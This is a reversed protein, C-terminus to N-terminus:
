RFIDPLYLYTPFIPSKYYAGGNTLDGMFNGAVFFANPNNDFLWSFNGASDTMVLQSMLIHGQRDLLDLMVPENLQVGPPSTFFLRGTVSISNPGRDPRFRISTPNAIRVEFSMGGLLVADYHTDTPNLSNVLLRASSAAVNVHFTQGVSSPGSPTIVVPLDQVGSPPLVVDTKNGNVSVTSGPPLDDNWIVTFTKTVIPSDNILHIIRTIPSGPGPPAPPSYFHDINEQASNNATNTETAPATIPDIRVRICSHFDFDGTPPTAISPTWPISVDTYGGPAITSLGPFITKDVNGINLWGSAGAMGVGLPDTVDFHVVVNSMAQTGINRIRAYVTNPHNACPNDGNGHGVATSDGFPIYTGYQYTGYGNCSSDIWIDSTEYTNLPPTLWPTMYADPQFIGQCTVNIRFVQPDGTAAVAVHFGEVANYTDGAHWLTTRAGNGQVTVWPDGGVIVREILVGQDPIPYLQDGNIHERVSVLYYLGGTIDIKVAQAEVATAPNVEEARIDATGGCAGTPNGVLISTYQTSPMWGPFGGSTFKEFMGSQGPYLRDMLEFENNYNSPHAPGGGAQFAHGIEHAWRGWVFPLGETPNEAFLAAPTSVLKGGPGIPLMISNEVGRFFFTTDTTPIAVLALVAKVGTYNVTNGAAAVADNLATSLDGLSSGGTGLYSSRNKPMTLLSTVTASITINSYSINQWLPSLGTDFINQVQAQTFRPTGGVDDAAIIRLVVVKQNGTLTPALVDPPATPPTYSNSVPAAAFPPASPASAVPDIYTPVTLLILLLILGLAFSLVFRRNRIQRFM